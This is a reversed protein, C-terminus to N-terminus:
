AAAAEGGKFATLRIAILNPRWAGGDAKRGVTRKVSFSRRDKSQDVAILGLGELLRKMDDAKGAAKIVRAFDVERLLIERGNTPHDYIFGPASEARSSGEIITEDRGIWILNAVNNHHWNRLQALLRGADNAMRHASGPAETMTLQIHGSLSTRVAKFLEKHTWPHLEYRIALRGFAYIFAFRRRVREGASSTRKHHMFWAMRKGLWTELGGRDEHLDAHLRRLFEVGVAGAHRVMQNRLRQSFADVSSLGHITEFAGHAQQPLPIEILRDLTARDITQSTGVAEEQISRNASTMIVSRFLAEPASNTARGRESGDAMSFALAQLTEARSVRPGFAQLDDLALGLDNHASAVYELNAVTHKATEVAGLRAGRDSDPHLGWQSSVAALITSKGYGAEGVLVVVFNDSGLIALGPSVLAAAAITMALSNGRLLAGVGKKWGEVTGVVRFKDRYQAVKTAPIFVVQSSAGGIVGAPHVFFRFDKAWGPKTAVFFSPDSQLHGQLAATLTNKAGSTLIKAGADALAGFVKAPDSSFDGARFVLVKGGKKKGVLLRLYRRDAHDVGIGAFRIGSDGPLKTLTQLSEKSFSGFPSIESSVPPGGSKKIVKPKAKSAVQHNPSSSPRRRRLVDRDSSKPM